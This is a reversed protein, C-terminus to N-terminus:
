FVKWYISILVYLVMIKSLNDKVTLASQREMGRSSSAPIKKGESLATPTKQSEFSSHIKEKSKHLILAKKMEETSVIPM